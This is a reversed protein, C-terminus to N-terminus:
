WQWPRPEMARTSFPSLREKAQAVVEEVVVVAALEEVEEAV